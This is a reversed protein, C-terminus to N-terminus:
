REAKILSACNLSKALKETYSLSLNLEAAIRPAAVVHGRDTHAAIELIVELATFLPENFFRKTSDKM